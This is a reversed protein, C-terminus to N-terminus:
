WPSSEMVAFYLWQVVMLAGETAIFVGAPTPFQTVPADADPLKLGLAFVALMVIVFSPIALVFSDILVAALRLWIGAYAVRVPQFEGLSSGVPRGCASCFAAGEYLAVGCHTCFM